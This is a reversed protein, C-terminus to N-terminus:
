TEEDHDCSSVPPADEGTKQAYAAFERRAAEAFGEIGADDEWTQLPEPIGIDPSVVTSFTTGPRTVSEFSLAATAFGKDDRQQQNSVCRWLDRPLDNRYKGIHETDFLLDGPKLHRTRYSM